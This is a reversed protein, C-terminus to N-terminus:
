RESILLEKCDISGNSRLLEEYDNSCISRQLYQGKTAVLEEKELELDLELDMDKNMKM